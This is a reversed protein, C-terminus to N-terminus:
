QAPPLPNLQFSNIFVEVQAASHHNKPVTVMAMGYRNGIFGFRAAREGGDNLRVRIERGSAGKLPLDKSATLMDSGVITKQVTDLATRVDAPPSARYESAEMSYTLEGVQLRYQHTEMDALHSVQEPSLEVEEVLGPVSVTFADGAPTFPVGAPIPVAASYATANGSGSTLLSPDKTAVTAAATPDSQKVIGIAAIAGMTLVAIGVMSLIAPRTLWTNVPTAAGSQRKAAAAPLVSNAAPVAASNRGPVTAPGSSAIPPAAKMSAQESATEVRLVPLPAAPAAAQLVKRTEVRARAASIGSRLWEARKRSINFVGDRLVVEIGGANNLRKLIEAGSLAVIGDGNHEIVRERVDSIVLRAKGKDEGHVLHLLYNKPDDDPSREIAVFFKTKIFQKWAPGMEGEAQAIVAMDGWETVATDRQSHHNVANTTTM